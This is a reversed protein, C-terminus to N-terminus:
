MYAGHYLLCAVRACASGAVVASGVIVFAFRHEALGKVLLALHLRVVIANCECQAEGGFAEGHVHVIVFVEVHIALIQVVCWPEHHRTSGYETMYSARHVYQM